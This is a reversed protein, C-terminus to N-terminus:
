QIAKYHKTSWPIGTYSHLQLNDVLINILDQNLKSFQSEKCHMGQLLTQIKQHAAHVTIVNDLRPFAGAEPKGQFCFNLDMYSGMHKTWFDFPCCSIMQQICCLDFNGLTFECDLYQMIYFIYSRAIQEVWQQNHPSLKSVFVEVGDKLTWYVKEQNIELFMVGFDYNLRIHKQLALTTYNGMEFFLDFFEQTPTNRSCGFLMCSSKFERNAECLQPTSKQFQMAIMPNPCPYCFKALKLEYELHKEAIDKELRIRFEEPDCTEM